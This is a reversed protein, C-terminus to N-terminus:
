INNIDIISFSTYNNDKELRGRVILLKDTAIKNNLLEYKKPFIIARYDSKGDTITLQCMM